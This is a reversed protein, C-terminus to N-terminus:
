SISHVGEKELRGKRGIWFWASVVCAGLGHCFGGDEFAAEGNESKIEREPRLIV